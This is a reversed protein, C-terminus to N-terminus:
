FARRRNGSSNNSPTRRTNDTKDRRQVDRRSSRNEEFPIEEDDGEPPNMFDDSGGRRQIVDDDPPFSGTEIYVNMDDVSKDLVVDGLLEPIEPLDELSTNDSGVEYCEYTTQLDGAKGNREIEFIHNVLPTNTGYRSMYGSLKSAWTKGREWIQVEDDDMNYLPILFRITSSSIDQCACFPCKEVPENYARLCSVSKFVKDNIPVRHVSFTISDLDEGHNLMFRARAVDKDNQLKFYNVNNFSDGGYNDVDSFNVRGM